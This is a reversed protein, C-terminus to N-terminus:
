HDLSLKTLHKIRLLINESCSMLKRLLGKKIHHGPDTYYIKINNSLTFKYLSNFESGNDTTISKFTHIKNM